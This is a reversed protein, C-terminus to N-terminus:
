QGFPNNNNDNNNYYDNGTNTTDFPNGNNTTNFPNDNNANGYPNETNLFPNNNNITMNEIDAAQKNLSKLQSVTSIGLVACVVGVVLIIIVAAWLSGRTSTTDFCHDHDVDFVTELGNENIFSSYYSKAKSESLKTWKGTLEIEYGTTDDIKEDFFDYTADFLKEFKRVLNKDKVKFSVVTRNDLLGACYYEESTKMGNKTTTKKAYDGLQYYLTVKYYTGVKPEEGAEYVELLDEVENKILFKSNTFVIAAAIVVAAIAALFFVIATSKLSGKSKPQINAM